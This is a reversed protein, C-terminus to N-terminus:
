HIGQKHLSELALAGQEQERSSAKADRSAQIPKGFKENFVAKNSDFVETGLFGPMLFDFLSWLDIVNNQVPTGSLILRHESRVMKVAKTLKTSPNKIV